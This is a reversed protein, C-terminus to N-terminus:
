LYGIFWLLLFLLGALPLYWFLVRIRRTHYDTKPMRRYDEINKDVQHVKYGIFASVFVLIFLLSFFSGYKSDELVMLQKLTWFYFGIVASAAVLFIYTRPHQWWPTDLEM